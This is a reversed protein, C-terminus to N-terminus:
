NTNNIEHLMDYFKCQYVGNTLEQNKLETGGSNLNQFVKYLIRNKQNEADVKIEIVSITTFDVTRRIEKPLGSYRIDIVKEKDGEREFSKKQDKNMFTAWM